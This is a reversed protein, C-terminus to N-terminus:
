LVSKLPNTICIMNDMSNVGTLLGTTRGDAVNEGKM